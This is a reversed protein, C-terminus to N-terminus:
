FIDCQELLTSVNFWTLDFITVTSRWWSGALRSIYKRGTQEPLNAAETAKPLGEVPKKDNAKTRKGSCALNLDVVTNGKESSETYSTTNRRSSKTKLKMLRKISARSSTCNPSCEQGEYFRFPRLEWGYLIVCSSGLFVKEDLLSSTRIMTIRRWQRRQWQRPVIPNYWRLVVWLTRIQHFSGVSYPNQGRSYCTQQVHRNTCDCTSGNNCPVNKKALQDNSVHLAKFDQNPDRGLM